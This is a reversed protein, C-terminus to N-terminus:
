SSQFYQVFIYEGFRSFLFLVIGDVDKKIWVCLEYPIGRRVSLQFHIKFTDQIKHTRKILNSLGLLSGWDKYNSVLLFGRHPVQLLHPIKKIFCYNFMYHDYIITTNIGIVTEEIIIINEWNSFRKFRCIKMRSVM